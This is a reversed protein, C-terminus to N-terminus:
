KCAKSTGVPGPDGQISTLAHGTNRIHGGKEMGEIKCVSGLTQKKMPAPKYDNQYMSGQGRNMYKECGGMTRESTDEGGPNKPDMKM